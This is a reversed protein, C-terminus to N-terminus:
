RFRFAQLIAEVDTMHSEFVAERATYTISYIMDNYAFLTQMIRFEVGDVVTRYTYSYATREAVTREVESLREYEPLVARYETECQAFYSQVSISQDPTYSTVTINSKESEPYYAESAGSEANCIWNKPVYLRYEIQDASAIKMGDPTKKDTVEAGNPDTKECLVFNAIITEFDSALTDYLAVTCYGHLSVMDGNYKATIQFCTYEKGDNTQRYRLRIAETGSLVTDAREIVSFDTLSTTYGAICYDMYDNVTMEADAPTYYRASVMIKENPSYYAGSIGSVTNTVWHSPVYLRFPEGALTASQMDEPTDGDSSSCSVAFLLILLALTLAIIKKTM